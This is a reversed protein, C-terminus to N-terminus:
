ALFVKSLEGMAIGLMKETQAGGDSPESVIRYHLLPRVVM